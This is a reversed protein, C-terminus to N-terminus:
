CKFVLLLMYYWLVQLGFITNFLKIAETLNTLAQFWESIKEVYLNCVYQNVLNTNTLQFNVAIFRKHKVVSRIICELQESFVYLLASIFLYEFVYRYDWWMSNIKFIIFVFHPLSNTLSTDKSYFIPFLLRSVVYTVMAVKLMIKKRGFNKLYVNDEAIFNNNSELFKLMEKFKEAHYCSLVLFLTSNFSLFNVFVIDAIRSHTKFYICVISNSISFLVDFLIVIYIFYRKRRSIFSSNRFTLLVNGIIFLFRLSKLIKM